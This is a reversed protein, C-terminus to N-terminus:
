SNLHFHTYLVPSIIRISSLWLVIGASFGPGTSGKGYLFECPSARYLVRTQLTFHGRRTALAM